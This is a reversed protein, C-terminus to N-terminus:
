RLSSLTMSIQDLNVTRDALGNQIVRRPMGTILSSSLDQAWVGAGKAKLLRAGELGDDGMGTLVIGLSKSGFSDAISAFLVNVSPVYNLRPDLPLIKIRVIDKGDKEVMMHHGGPAIYVFGPSIVDGPEAEKVNLTTKNNLRDAFAKTFGSPMHQAVLIPRTFSSPLAQIIQQIAKPGGTSTGIAVVQVSNSFFTDISTSASSSTPRTNDQSDQLTTSRFLSKNKFSLQSQHYIRLITERIKNRIDKGGAELEHYNKLLFDVAGAELADLTLRAGEYTLSSFMIVPTPCESMIRKLATIGDMLPMEYDMTIIDPKLAHTLDIAEQGNKATGILTIDKDDEFWQSLRKRFFSSDDVMLLKAAM